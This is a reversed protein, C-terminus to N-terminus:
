AGGKAQMCHRLRRKARFLRLRVAGVEVQLGGALSEYSDSGLSKAQILARDSPPLRDLCDRFMAIQESRSIAQDPSPTRLDPPDFAAFDAEDEDGRVPWPGRPEKRRSRDRAVNLAIRRLWALFNANQPRADPNEVLWKLARLFTEQGVDEAADASVTYARAFTFVRRAYANWLLEVFRRCDMATRGGGVMREAYFREVENTESLDM